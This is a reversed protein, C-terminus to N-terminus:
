SHIWSIAKGKLVAPTYQIVHCDWAAQWIRVTSIVMFEYPPSIYKDTNIFNDWNAKFHEKMEFFMPYNQSVRFKTWFKLVMHFKYETIYLIFMEYDIFPCLTIVSSLIDWDGQIQKDETSDPTVFCIYSVLSINELHWCRL